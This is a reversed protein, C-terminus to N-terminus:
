KTVGADKRRIPNKGQPTMGLSRLPRVRNAWAAVLFREKNTTKDNNQAAM